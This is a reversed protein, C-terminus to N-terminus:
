VFKYKPDTVDRNGISTPLKYEGPGPSRQKEPSHGLDRQSAKGIICVPARTTLKSSDYQGPGPVQLTEKFKMNKFRLTYAPMKPKITDYNPKYQPGPSSEPKKDPFKLGIHFKPGEKGVKGNITYANAGPTDQM